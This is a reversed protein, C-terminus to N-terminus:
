NNIYERAKNIWDEGREIGTVTYNCSYCLLGRVRNTNHCHDVVEPKRNCLCCKYDQEKIMQDWQKKGVGYRQVRRRWKECPACEQCWRKHSACKSIFDTKCLECALIREVKLKSKKENVKIDSYQRNLCESSGCTRLYGKNRGNIINKRADDECYKCKRSM